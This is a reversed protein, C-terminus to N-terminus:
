WVQHNIHHNLSPPAPDQAAALLNSSLIAAAMLVLRM